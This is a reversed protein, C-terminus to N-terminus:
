MGVSLIFQSTFALDIEERKLTKMNKSGIAIGLHALATTKPDTTNQGSNKKKIPM